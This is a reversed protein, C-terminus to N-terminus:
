QKKVAWWRIQGDNASSILVDESLFKTEVVGGGAGISFSDSKELTPVKFVTVVGSGVGAIAVKDGNPSFELESTMGLKPALALLRGSGADWLLLSVSYTGYVAAAYKGDRSLAALYFFDGTTGARPISPGNTLTLMLKGSRTDWLRIDNDFGAGLLKTGDHNLAIGFVAGRVGQFWHAYQGTELDWSTVASAMNFWAALDGSCVVLTHNDPELLCRNIKGPFLNTIFVEAGANPAAMSIHRVDRLTNGIRRIFNTRELDWIEARGCGPAENRTVIAFPKEGRFYYGGLYRRQDEAVSASPSTIRLDDLSILKKNFVAHKQLDVIVFQNSAGLSLARRNDGSVALITGRQRPLIEEGEVIFTVLFFAILFIWPIPFASPDTRSNHCNENQM